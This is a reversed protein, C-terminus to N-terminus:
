RLDGARSWMAVVAVVLLALGVLVQSTGLDLRGIVLVAIWTPPVLAVVVATRRAWRQWTAHALRAGIPAITALALAVHFAAVAVGTVMVWPTDPDDVALAWDAGVLAVVALGAHGDPFLASVGVLLVIALDLAPQPETAALRISAVAALGTLVVAIRLALQGRDVRGFLPPASSSSASSSATVPATM